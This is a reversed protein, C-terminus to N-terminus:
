LVDGKMRRNVKEKIDEFSSYTILNSKNLPIEEINKWATEIEDWRAFLTTQGQYLDLLLKEYAEPLNGVARCKHCYDLSAIDISNDLGPAKTNMQFEIGDEPAIKILLRNHPIETEGFLYDQYQGRKFKIVIESNKEDLGKGTFFYFPVGHFRKTNIFAKGFFLTETSSNADVGDEELYGEYQGLLIDETFNLAKIAEVKQRRVDDAQLTNPDEMAILAAMQMLHSQVMDKIAGVKDYYGARSLVGEKEKAILTVSEIAHNSWAEQFLRNAFRVTLINQIMEKGLYHDIRYIQDEEFYQWLLKNIEKASKLDEGFPKEFVIRDKNNEKTIVGGESIGKAIPSILKPPVALYVMKVDSSDGVKKALREYDELTDVDLKFYAIRELTEEWDLDDSVQSKIENIYDETTYDRRGVAVIKLDKPFLEKKLLANLAPLLKKYMLNGTSGFVIFYTSM